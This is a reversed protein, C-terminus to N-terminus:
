KLGPLTRITPRTEKRFNQDKVINNIVTGFLYFVKFFFGYSLSDVGGGKNLKGTKLSCWKYLRLTRVCDTWPECILSYPKNCIQRPLTHLTLVSKYAWKNTYKLSLNESWFYMYRGSAHNVRGVSEAMINILSGATKTIGNQFTRDMLVYITDFQGM